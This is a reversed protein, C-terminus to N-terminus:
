IWLSTLVDGFAEPAAAYMDAFLQVFEQKTLENEQNKCYGAAVFTRLGDVVEAYPSDASLQNFFDTLTISSGPRGAAGQNITDFYNEVQSKFNLDQFGDVIAVVTRIFQQVNILDGATFYAVIQIM